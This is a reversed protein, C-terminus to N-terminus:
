HRQLNRRESVIRRLNLGRSKRLFDANMREHKGWQEQDGEQVTDAKTLVGLSTLLRFARTGVLLEFATPTANEPLRQLRNITLIMKLVDANDFNRSDGKMSIAVLILCEEQSVYSM